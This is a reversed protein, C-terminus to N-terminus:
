NKIIELASIRRLSAGVGLGGGELSSPMKFSSSIMELTFSGGDKQGDEGGRGQTEGIDTSVEFAESPTRLIGAPNGMAFM